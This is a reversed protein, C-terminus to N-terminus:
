HWWNVILVYTHQNVELRVSSNMGWPQSRVSISKFPELNFRDGELRLPPINLALRVDIGGYLAIICIVDYPLRAAVNM